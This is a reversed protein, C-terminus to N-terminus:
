IKSPIKTAALFLLIIKNNKTTKEPQRFYYYLIKNNEATKIRAVSFLFICDYDIFYKYESTLTLMQFLM